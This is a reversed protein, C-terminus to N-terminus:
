RGVILGVSEAGFIKLRGRLLGTGGVSQSSFLEGAQTLELRSADLGNGAGNILWLEQSGYFVMELPIAPVVVNLALCGSPLEQYNAAHEGEKPYCATNAETASGAEGYEHLGTRQLTAPEEGREGSTLELRWPLSSTGRSYSSIVNQAERESALPCERLAAGLKRCVEGERLSTELPMETTLTVKAECLTPGRHEPGSCSGVFPESCDWAGFRTIEGRGHGAENFVRGEEAVECGFGPGETSRLSVEGRAIFPIVSGPLRGEGLLTGNSHWLPFAAAAPVCPTALIALLCAIAAVSAGARKGGVGM